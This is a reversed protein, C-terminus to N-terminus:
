GPGPIEEVKKKRFRDGHAFAASPGKHKHDDLKFGGVNYKGPDLGSDM